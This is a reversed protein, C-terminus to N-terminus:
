GRFADTQAGHLLDLHIVDALRETLAVAVNRPRSCKELDARRGDIPPEPLILALTSPGHGHRDGRCPQAPNGARRGSGRGTGASGHSRDGNGRPRGLGTGEGKRSGNGQLLARKRMGPQRQRHLFRSQDLKRGSLRNGGATGPAGGGLAGRRAGHKYQRIMIGHGDATEAFVDVFDPLKLQYFDDIVRGDPIRVTEVSLDLWPPAAFLNKRDIVTWPQHKEKM